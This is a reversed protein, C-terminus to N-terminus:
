VGAVFINIPVIRVLGRGHVIREPLPIIQGPRIMGYRNNNPQLSSRSPGTLKPAKLLYPRHMDNVMFAVIFGNLAHPVPIMKTVQHTNILRDSNSKRDVVILHDIVSWLCGIVEHIEQYVKELVVRPIQALVWKVNCALTVCTM